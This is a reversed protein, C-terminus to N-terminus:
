YSVVVTFQEPEALNDYQDKMNSLQSIADQPPLYNLLQELVHQSLLDLDVELIRRRIEQYSLKVSGLLIATLSLTLSLFSFFSFKLNSLLQIVFIYDSENRNIDM